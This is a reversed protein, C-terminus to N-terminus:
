SEGTKRECCCINRRTVFEAIDRNTVTGDIVGSMVRVYMVSQQSSGMIHRHKGHNNRANFSKFGVDSDFIANVDIPLCMM